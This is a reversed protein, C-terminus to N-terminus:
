VSMKQKDREMCWQLLAWSLGGICNGLGINDQNLQYLLEDIWQPDEAKSVLLKDVAEPVTICRGLFLRTLYFNSVDTLEMLQLTTDDVPICEKFMPIDTLLEALMYKDSLSKENHYSIKVFEPLEEYLMDIKSRYPTHERLTQCIHFFRILWSCPYVPLVYSTYRQMLIDRFHRVCNEMRQRWIDVESSKSFDLRNWVYLGKKSEVGLDFFHLARNKEQFLATDIKEFVDKDMQVFEQRILYDLGWVVGWLVSELANRSELEIKDLQMIKQVSIDILSDAYKAMEPENKYRAYHYLLIAIGIKGTMLGTKPVLANTKAIQRVFVDLCDSLIKYSNM